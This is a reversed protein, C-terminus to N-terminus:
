NNKMEMYYLDLGEGWYNKEIRTLEYGFKEFFLNAHQSTRVVLKQIEKHYNFIEICKLVGLRGVNKNFYKPHVFIWTIHAESIEAHILYGIGGIIENSDSFFTFYTDHFKDLYSDFLDLEKIDFYEPVSLLFIELLGKKDFNNYPKIHM